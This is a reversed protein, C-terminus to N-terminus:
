APGDSNSSFKVIIILLMSHSSIERQINIKKHKLSCVGTSTEISKEPPLSSLLPSLDFIRQYTCLMFM